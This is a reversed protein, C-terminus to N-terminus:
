TIMFSLLVLTKRIEYFVLKIVSFSYYVRKRMKKIIQGEALDINGQNIWDIFLQIWQNLYAEISIEVNQEEYKREINIRILEEFIALLNRYAVLDNISQIIKQLSEVKKTNLIATKKVMLNMKAAIIPAVILMKDKVANHEGISRDSAIIAREKSYMQLWGLIVETDIRSYIKDYKRLLANDFCLSLDDIKLYEYEKIILKAIM